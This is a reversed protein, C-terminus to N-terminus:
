GYVVGGNIGSGINKWDFVKPPAISGIGGSTNVAMVGKGKSFISSGGFANAAAGIASGLFNAVGANKIERAQQKGKALQEAMETERQFGHAADGLRALGMQSLAAREKMGQQEVAVDGSTLVRSLGKARLLARQSIQARSAPTDVIESGAMRQAADASNIGRQASRDDGTEMVDRIFSAEATDYKSAQRRLASARAVMDLEAASARRKKPKSFLGM